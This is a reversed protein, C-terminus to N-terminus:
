EDIMHTKHSNSEFIPNQIFHFQISNSKITKQIYCYNVKFPLSNKLLDGQTIITIEIKAM